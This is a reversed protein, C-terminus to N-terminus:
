DIKWPIGVTEAEAIADGLRLLEATTLYRERGEERYKEIGRAPNYGNGVFGNKIAYTYVSSIVALVRNANHPTARMDLHLKAIEAPTVAKALSKGLVPCAHNKLLSQYLAKTSSKRKAAVHNQLFAEALQEFSLASNTTSREAAPDRGRAVDGLAIRAEERAMEPTLPGHRGITLFRKPACPGHGTLRYRLIYTKTGSTEVKLGFGKLERDWLFYRKGSASAADVTRKMLKVQNSALDNM